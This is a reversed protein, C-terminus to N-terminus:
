YKFTTQLVNQIIMLSNKKTFEKNTFFFGIM